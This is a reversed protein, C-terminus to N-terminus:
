APPPENARYDEGDTRGAAFVNERKGTRKTTNWMGYQATNICTRSTIKGRAINYATAQRQVFQASIIGVGGEPEDSGDITYKM